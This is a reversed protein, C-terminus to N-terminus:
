LRLPGGSGGERPLKQHKREGEAEARYWLKRVTPASALLMRLQNTLQHCLGCVGRIQNLVRVPPARISGQLFPWVGGSVPKLRTGPTDPHVWYAPPCGLLSNRFVSADKRRRAAGRSLDKQTQASFKIKPKKGVKRQRKSRKAQWRSAHKKTLKLIARSVGALDRPSAARKGRQSRLQM